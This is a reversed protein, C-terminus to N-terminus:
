VEASLCVSRTIASAPVVAVRAHRHQPYSHKSQREFPVPPESKAFPRGPSRLCQDMVSRRAGFSVRLADARKRCGPMRQEIARLSIARTAYTSTAAPCPYIDFIMGAEDNIKEEEDLEDSLVDGAKEVRLALDSQRFLLAKSALRALETLAHEGESMTRCYGPPPPAYGNWASPGRHYGRIQGSLANAAQIARVVETGTIPQAVAGAVMTVSLAVVGFRLLRYLM